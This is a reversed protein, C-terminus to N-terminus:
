SSSKTRKYPALASVVAWGYTILSVVTALYEWPRNAQRLDQYDTWYLKVVDDFSPPVPRKAPPTRAAQQHYRALVDQHIATAVNYSFQGAAPYKLWVTSSLEATGILMLGIVAPIVWRLRMAFLIVFPMCYVIYREHVRTPFIFISWLWLGAFVVVALRPNRRFRFGCAVALSLMVVITLLRGWMDKSLGAVTAQSNLMEFSVAADARLADLYWINFAKMSTLPYGTLNSIYSARLWALGDAITWPLAIIAVTLATGGVLRCLRYAIPGISAREHEDRLVLCAFLVVPGLLIGQPKLMAALGVMVGAWAWRGSLMAWVCWVAPAIFWSDTQAWFASDMALPPFLWCAAGAIVAAKKSVFRKGLLYVGIAALVDAALSALSMVLRAVLTNARLPPDVLALARSQLWYLTIGLPPYNAVRPATRQHPRFLGDQSDYLQGSITPNQEKPVSYVNLLGFRDATVGMCIFDFHDADYGWRTSAELLWARETLGVALLLLVFALTSKGFPVGKRVANSLKATEGARKM